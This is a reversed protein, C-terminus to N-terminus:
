LEKIPMQSGTVEMMRYRVIINVRTSPHLARGGKRGEDSNSDRSMMLLRIVQM